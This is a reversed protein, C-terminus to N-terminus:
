PTADYAQFWAVIEDPAARLFRHNAFPDTVTRTTTGQADLRDRYPYMTWIPVVPDLVGHLFSTPPHDDPLDEPVSCLPGVCDAYSASQIALARFTGAHSVAMRSTM